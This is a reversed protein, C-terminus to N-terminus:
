LLCNNIEQFIRASVTASDLRNEVLEKLVPFCNRELRSVHLTDWLDRGYGGAVIVPLDRYWPYQSLVDSSNYVYAYPSLGGLMTFLEAQKPHSVWRIFDLAAEPNKSGHSILLSGGTAYTRGGPLPAYGIQGGYTYKQLQIIDSAYNLYIMEMATEGHIFKDLTVGIWNQDRVLLAHRGCAAMNQISKCVAEVDVPTEGRRFPRDSIYNLYRLMFGSFLETVSDVAMGTGATVPSHSNIRCDFFRSMLAFEEYSSPINLTDGTEEFYMRKLMPNEFLDKRYVLLESGIDFPIAKRDGEILSFDRVVSPIMGGTINLFDPEEITIFLDKPYLSLASMNSRLIDVSGSDATEIAAEYMESPVRTNFEFNVGTEKTYAPAMRMLAYTFPGTSMMLRLTVGKMVHPASVPTQSQFGVPPLVDRSTDEGNLQALLNKTASQGLLSFDLMYRILGNNYVSFKSRTIAVVPPCAHLSGISAVLQVMEVMRSNHLVLVDPPCKSIFFDFPTSFLTVEDVNIIQLTARDPTLISQLGVTLDNSDPFYSPGTLLGVRKYGDQLLRRGIEEGIRRFDFGVFASKGDVDRLAYVLKGGNSLIPRYLEPETLCCSITLVGSVRLQAVHNIMQKELNASGNTIFLLVQYGSIELLNKAGNFFAIYNPEEATPLIIAVTKSRYADARLQKAQANVVYGLKEAADHVLLIRELSVNGRGNLVNSVTGQSVNAMRAIDKITAM